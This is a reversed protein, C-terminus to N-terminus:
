GDVLSLIDHEQRRSESGYLITSVRTCHVGKNSSAQHEQKGDEGGKKMSPM